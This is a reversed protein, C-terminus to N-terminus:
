KARIPLYLELQRYGMARFAEEPTIVSFLLQRGPREDVVFCGSEQVWRRLERSVREGDEDDEDKSVAAAYLGGAFDVIDYGATDALGEPLAYYWVAREMDPDWWMFDRQFFRDKRGADVASWWKDFEWIDRDGSSVMKTSPLGIVRIGEM